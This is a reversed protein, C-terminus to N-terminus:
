IKPEKPPAVTESACSDIGMEMEGDIGRQRGSDVHDFMTYPYDTYFLRPGVGITVSTTEVLAVDLM